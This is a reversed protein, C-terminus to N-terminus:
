RNPSSVDSNRMLSNFDSLFQDTVRALSYTGSQRYGAAAVAELSAEDGIINKMREGLADNVSHSRHNFIFGTEGNRIFDRFCELDSVLVACGQTM